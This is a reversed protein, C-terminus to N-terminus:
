ESIPNVSFLPYSRHSFKRENKNERQDPDHPPTAIAEYLVIMCPMAMVIVFPVSMGFTIVLTGGGGFTVLVLAVIMGLAIFMRTVAM